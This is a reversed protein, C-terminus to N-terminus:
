RCRRIRGYRRVSVVEAPVSAIRRNFSSASVTRLRPLDSTEREYNEHALRWRYQRYVARISPRTCDLYLEIFHACFAEEENSFSSNLPAYLTLAEDM